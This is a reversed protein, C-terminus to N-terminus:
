KLDDQTRQYYQDHAQCVPCRKRWEPRDGQIEIDDVFYPAFMPDHRKNEKDAAEEAEKENLYVGLIECDETRVLYIKPKEPPEEPKSFM